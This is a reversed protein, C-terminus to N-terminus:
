SDESSWEFGATEETISRFVRHDKLINQYKELEDQSRQL